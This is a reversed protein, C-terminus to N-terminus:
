WRANASIATHNRTPSVWSWCGNYGPTDVFIYAISPRGLIDDAIAPEEVIGDAELSPAGFADSLGEIAGCSVERTGTCSEGSRMCLIPTRMPRTSRLITPSSIRAVPLTATSSVLSRM